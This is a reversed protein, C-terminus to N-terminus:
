MLLRRSDFLTAQIPFPILFRSALKVFCMFLFVLLLSSGNAKQHGKHFTTRGNTLFSVGSLSPSSRLICICCLQAYFILCHAYFIVSAPNLDTVVVLVFQM